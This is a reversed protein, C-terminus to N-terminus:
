THASPSCDGAHFTGGVPLLVPADLRFVRGGALGAAALVAGVVAFAALGIHLGTPALMSLVLPVLGAGVLLAVGAYSAYTLASRGRLAPYLVCFGVAALVVNLAVVGPVLGM